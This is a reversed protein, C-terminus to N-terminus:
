LISLSHCLQCICGHHTLYKQHERKNKDLIKEPWKGTVAYKQVAMLGRCHNATVSLYIPDFGPYYPFECVEKLM